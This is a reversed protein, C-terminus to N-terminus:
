LSHKIHVVVSVTVATCDGTNGASCFITLIVCGFVFTGCAADLHFVGGSHFLSLCPATGEARVSTKLGLDSYIM